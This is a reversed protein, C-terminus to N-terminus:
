NLIICNLLIVDNLSGKLIGKIKIFQGDIPDKLSQDNQMDCIIYRSDNTQGKLIITYRDNLANVEKIIGEVKIVEDVIDSDKAILHQEILQDATFEFVANTEYVIQDSNANCSILVGFSSLVVCLLLFIRFNLIIAAKIITNM